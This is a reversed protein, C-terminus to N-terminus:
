LLTNFYSKYKKYYRGNIKIKTKKFNFYFEFISADKAKLEVKYLM